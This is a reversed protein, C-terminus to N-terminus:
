HIFEENYLNEPFLLELVILNKNEIQPIHTSQAIKIKFMCRSITHIESEIKRLLTLYKPLIIM